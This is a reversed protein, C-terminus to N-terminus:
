KAQPIKLLLEFHDKVARPSFEGSDSADTVNPAIVAWVAMTDNADFPTNALVEQLLNVKDTM